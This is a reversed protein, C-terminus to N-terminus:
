PNMSWVAANLAAAYGVWLLCPVLVPRRLEAGRREEVQLAIEVSKRGPGDGFSSSASPTNPPWDM